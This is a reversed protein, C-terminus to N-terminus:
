AVAKLMLTYCDPCYRVIPMTSYEHPQKCGFCPLSIVPRQGPDAALPLTPAVGPSQAQETQWTTVWARITSASAGSDVCYNTLHARHEVDTCRALSMAAAISLTRNHVLPGLDDPLDLLALRGGIWETSRRTIASLESVSHGADNIAMALSRAEEIPSLASRQYNEAFTLEAPNISSQPDLVDCMILEAGIMRHALLRRHGAIVRYREGSQLVQIPNLLGQRRISDALQNLETEDFNLRHANIPEDILHITIAQMNRM